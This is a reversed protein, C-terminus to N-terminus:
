AVVVAGYVIKINEDTLDHPDDSLDIARVKFNRVGPTVTSPLTLAPPPHIDWVGNASDMDTMHSSDASTLEIMPTIDGPKERIYCEIVWGSTDLVNGGAQTATWRYTNVSGKKLVLDTAM